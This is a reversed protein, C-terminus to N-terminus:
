AMVTVKSLGLLPVRAPEGPATSQAETKAFVFRPVPACHEQDEGVLRDTAMPATACPWARM